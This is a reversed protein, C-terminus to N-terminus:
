LARHPNQQQGTVRIIRSPMMAENTIQSSRGYVEGTVALYHQLTLTPDVVDCTEYSHHVDIGLLFEAGSPVDDSLM